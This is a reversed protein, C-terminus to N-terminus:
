KSVSHSGVSHLLQLSFMLNEDLTLSHNSEVTMKSDKGM